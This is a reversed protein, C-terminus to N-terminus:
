LPMQKLMLEIRELFRWRQGSHGGPYEQLHYSINYSDLKKAFRRHGWQLGYEDQQGAALHVWKLKSFNDAHDDIMVLPDWARYKEWVTQDIEGTELDFFIDGLIKKANLNPAYCPAMGLLLMTDFVHKGLSSPNPSELFAAIFKEVSGAKQIDSLAHNIAPWFLQEYAADGASSCIYRYADPRKMGFLLAGFGGSSHGAVGRFDASALTHFESDIFAPLDDCFYDMYNGIAPSNVYQSCGLKSGADPFVVICAPIKNATIAADLNQPLSRTFVSEDLAYSAGKSGYGSLLTIVPYPDSRNEDYDPPLYVPFEREHADGMPFDKISEASFKVWKLM